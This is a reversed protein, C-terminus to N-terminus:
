DAIDVEVSEPRPVEASIKQEMEISSLGWRAGEPYPFPRFHAPLGPVHESRPRDPNKAMSREFLLKDNWDKMYTREQIMQVKKPTYKLGHLNRYASRLAGAQSQDQSRYSEKIWSLLPDTANTSPMFVSTSTGEGNEAVSFSIERAKAAETLKEVREKWDSASHDFSVDLVSGVMMDARFPVKKEKCIEWLNRAMKRGSLDADHCAVVGHGNKAAEDVLWMPLRSGGMADIVTDRGPRDMAWKSLGDIVAETVLVEKTQPTVKGIRFVAQGMQGRNGKFNGELDIHSYANVLNTEVGRFPIVITPIQKIWTESSGRKTLEQERSAGYIVRQNMMTEILDSPLGRKQTFYERVRGDLSPNRKPLAIPTEEEDETGQEMRSLDLRPIQLPKAVLGRREDEKLVQPCFQELMFRHARMYSDHEQDGTNYKRPNSAIDNPQPDMGTISCLARFLSVPGFGGLGGNYLKDGGLSSFPQNAKRKDVSLRYGNVLYKSEGRGNYYPKLGFFEEAIGTNSLSSLAMKEDQYRRQAEARREARAKACAEARLEEQTKRKRSSVTDSNSSM